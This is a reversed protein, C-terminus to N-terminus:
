QVHRNNLVTVSEAECEIEAGAGFDYIQRDLPVPFGNEDTAGGSKGYVYRNMAICVGDKVQLRVSRRVNARNVICFSWSRETSSEGVSCAALVRVDESALGTRVIRSEPPFCRCLLSWPYFWPRLGM